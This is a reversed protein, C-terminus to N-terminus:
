GWRRSACHIPWGGVLRDRDLARGVSHAVHSSALVAARQRAPHRLVRERRRWLSRRCSWFCNPAVFLLSVVWFYKLTARQSPTSPAVLLPDSAPVDGPIPEREQAAHWVAMAGIGALLVIISVGTWVVADGSVNNGILPEHPWNNTYSVTDNPRVSAAAWSSWFFFASLAELKAPDPQAGAPIAYAEHGHSFIDSYHAANARFARARVDDIFLTNTSADFSNRRILTTLQARLAAQEAPSLAAYSKGHEHNAWEDLIFMAERHLWDATWDPAVYSGHGWVSGVQMGGLAQWVNQGRSVSGDPVVPRGDRTMIREPVPPAEQYIRLGTWGLIAFSVGVVAAFAAWYRKM